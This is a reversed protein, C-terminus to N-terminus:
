ESDPVAKTPDPFAGLYARTPPGRLIHVDSWGHTLHMILLDRYADKGGVNPNWLARFIYRPVVTLRIALDRRVDAIRYIEPEKGNGERPM